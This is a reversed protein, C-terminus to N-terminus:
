VSYYKVQARVGVQRKLNQKLYSKNPPLSFKRLLVQSQFFLIEIIDTLVKGFPLFWEQKWPHLLKEHLIQSWSCIMKFLYSNFSLVSGEEFGEDASVWCYSPNEFCNAFLLNNFLNLCPFFKSLKLMWKVIYVLIKKDWKITSFFVDPM